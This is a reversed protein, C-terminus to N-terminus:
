LPVVIVDEYMRVIGYDRSQFRGRSLSFRSKLGSNRM